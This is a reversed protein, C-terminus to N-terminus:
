GRRYTVASGDAGTADLAAWVNETDYWDKIPTKGDLAFGTAKITRGNGLTITATGHHRVPATIADGFQPHFLKTGPALMAWHTLPRADPPLLLDPKGTTQVLVAQGTRQARLATRTGGETTETHLSAFQGDRWVEVGEHHYRFLTIFGFGLRFNVAMRITLDAGSTTFTLDHTGLPTGNRFAAFSLRGGPPVGPVGSVSPGIAAAVRPVCAVAALGGLLGRRLMVVPSPRLLHPM